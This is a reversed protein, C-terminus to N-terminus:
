VVKGIEYENNNAEIMFRVVLDQQAERAAYANAANAYADAANAAAAAAYTAANHADAAAAYPAANHADAAAYAAAAAAAADAAAYAAAAAYANAYAAYAADAAVDRHKILNIRNDDTPENIYKLTADLAQRPRKDNPYKTEFIYLVSEACFYSWRLLPSKNALRVFVWVKDSYTINDLALFEELTGDFDEYYNLYNNFRSRCPRLGKIVETNIKIM